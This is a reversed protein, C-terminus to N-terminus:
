RGEYTQLKVWGCIWSKDLRHGEKLVYMLCVAECGFTVGDPSILPRLSSHLCNGCYSSQIIPTSDLTTHHNIKIRGSSLELYENTEEASETSKIGILGCRAITVFNM